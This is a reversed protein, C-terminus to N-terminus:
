NVDHPLLVRANIMRRAGDNSWCGLSPICVYATYYRARPARPSLVTHRTVHHLTYPLRFTAGRSFAWSGHGVYSIAMRPHDSRAAWVERVIILIQARERLSLARLRSLSFLVLTSSFVPVSVRKAGWVSYFALITPPLSLRMPPPPIFPRIDVM